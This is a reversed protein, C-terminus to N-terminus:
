SCKPASCRTGTRFLTPAHPHERCAHSFAALLVSSPRQLRWVHWWQPARRCEVDKGGEMSDAVWRIRTNMDAKAAADGKLATGNAPLDVFLTQRITALSEDRSWVVVGQQLLATLGCRFVM